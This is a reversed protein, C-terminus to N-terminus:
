SGSAPTAGAATYFAGQMGMVEHFDCHFQIAGGSAPITVKVTAKKGPDVTKDVGLASSTFTHQSKGENKVKITLQEGPRVKVFTPSFYYDHQGMEVTATTKASVDKSGHKNTEGNLTVPSKSAATAPGTVPAFALIGFATAFGVALVLSKRM